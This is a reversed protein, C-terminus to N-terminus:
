KLFRFSAVMSEYTADFEARREYSLSLLDTEHLLMVIEHEKEGRSSNELYMAPEGGVTVHGWTTVKALKLQNTFFEELSLKKPNQNIQIAITLSAIPEKNPSVICGIILIYPGTGSLARVPWTEPHKIEFGYKENRYTKWTSTDVAPACGDPRAAKQRAPGQKQPASMQAASTVTCLLIVVSSVVFIHRM